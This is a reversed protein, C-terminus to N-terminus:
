LARPLARACGGPREQSPVYRSWSPRLDYAFFFPDGPVVGGASPALSQLYEMEALANIYVELQTLATVRGRRGSTGFKLEQPDYLLRSRLSSREAGAIM